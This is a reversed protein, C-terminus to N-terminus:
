LGRRLYVSIKRYKWIVHGSIIESYGARCPVYEAKLTEQSCNLRRAYFMHVSM